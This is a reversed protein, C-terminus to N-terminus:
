KHKFAYYEEDKLPDVFSSNDEYLYFTEKGYLEIFNQLSMVVRNQSFYSVIREKSFVFYNGNALTVVLGQKLYDLTEAFTEIKEM